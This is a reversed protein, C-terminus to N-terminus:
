SVQLGEEYEMDEPMPTLSRNDDPHPLDKILTCYYRALQEPNCLVQEDLYHKAIKEYLAQRAQPDRTKRAEERVRQSFASTSDTVIDDDDSMASSMVFLNYYSGGGMMNNM